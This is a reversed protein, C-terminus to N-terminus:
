GTLVITITHMATLYHGCGKPESDANNRDAMLWARVAHYADLVEETLM